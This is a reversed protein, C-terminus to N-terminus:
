LDEPDMFGARALLVREQRRWFPHEGAPRLGRWPRDAWVVGGALGASAFSADEVALADLLAPVSGEGLRELIFVPWGAGRVVITPAAYCMGTCAGEVVRAALGRASLGRRLAALTAEAGVARGCTGMQVDLALGPEAGRRATAEAVLGDLWQEASPAARS